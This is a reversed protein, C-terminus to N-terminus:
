RVRGRARHLFQVAAVDARHDLQLVRVGAVGQARRRARDLQGLHLIRLGGDVGRQLDGGLALLVLDRGAQGRQVLLVRGKNIADIRFQVLRDNRRLAFQMQFHDHVAQAAAEVGM